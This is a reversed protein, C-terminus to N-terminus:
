ECHCAHLVRPAVGAPRLVLSTSKESIKVIWNTLDRAFTKVPLALFSSEDSFVEEFSVEFISEAVVVFEMLHSFPTGPLGPCFELFNALM